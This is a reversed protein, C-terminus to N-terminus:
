LSRALDRVTQHATATLTWEPIGGDLSLPAGSGRSEEALTEVLYRGGTFQGLPGFVEHDQSYDYVEIMPADAVLCCDLGYRGGTPVVLVAFTRGDTGLVMLAADKVHTSM